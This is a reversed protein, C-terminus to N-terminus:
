NGKLKRSAKMAEEVGAMSSAVAIDSRKPAPMDEAAKTIEQAYSLAADRDIPTRIMGIAIPAMQNPGAPFLFGVTSTLEMVGSEPDANVGFEFAQVQVNFM